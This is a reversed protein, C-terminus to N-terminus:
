LGGFAPLKRHFGPIVDLCAASCKCESLADKSGYVAEWRALVREERADFIASGSAARKQRYSHPEGGDGRSMPREHRHGGRHDYNPEEHVEKIPYHYEKEYYGPEHEYTRDYTVHEKHDEHSEQKSDDKDEGEHYQPEHKYTRSFTVQKKMMYDHDYKDEFSEQKYDDKEMLVKEHHDDKEFRGDKEKEYRDDKEYLDDKKFSSTSKGFSDDGSRTPKNYSAFLETISFSEAVPTLVVLAGIAVLPSIMAVVRFIASSSIQSSLAVSGLV